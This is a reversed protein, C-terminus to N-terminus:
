VRPRPAQPDPGREGQHLHPLRSLRLGDGAGAGSGASHAAVRERLLHGQPRSSKAYAGDHIYGGRLLANDECHAVILKGLRKAELMARRMMDATRFAKETM